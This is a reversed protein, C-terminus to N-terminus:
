FNEFVDFVLVVAAEVIQDEEIIRAHFSEDWLHM